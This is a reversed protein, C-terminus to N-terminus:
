IVCTPMQELFRNAKKDTQRIGVPQTQENRIPYLHMSSLKNHAIHMLDICQPNGVPTEKRRFLTHQM